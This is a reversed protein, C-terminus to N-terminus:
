LRFRHTKKPLVSIETYECFGADKIYWPWEDENLLSPMKEIDIYIINEHKCTTPSFYYIGKQNYHICVICGDQLFRVIDGLNNNTLTITYEDM